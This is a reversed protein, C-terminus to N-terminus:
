ATMSHLIPSEFSYAFSPMRVIVCVSEWLCGQLGFKRRAIVFLAIRCVSVVLIAHTWDPVFVALLMTEREPDRWSGM